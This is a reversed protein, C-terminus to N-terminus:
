GHSHDKRTGSSLAFRNETGALLRRINQRHTVLVLVAMALVGYLYVPVIQKGMLNTEILIVLPLAIAASMSGLSVYRSLLAVLLFVGVCVATELPLLTALAGLATNVGKGGRFRLYVPFIHGLVVAMACAVLFIDRTLLAQDIQRAVLVVAVGKGIDLLYVWFAAKAGVVRWVNTAGINGSGRTRIDPVGFWCSIILGFPIAGAMYAGVIAALLKATDM